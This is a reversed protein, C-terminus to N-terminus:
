SYKTKPTMIMVYLRFSLESLVKKGYVKVDFKKRSTKRNHIITLTYLGSHEPTTNNITLSGTRHDLLLTDRFPMTGRVFVSLMYSWKMLEAIQSDPSDPGFRWIIHHDRRVSGIGTHLTVSDGLMVWVSETDGTDAGFVGPPACVARSM